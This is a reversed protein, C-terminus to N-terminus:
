TPRSRLPWGTAPYNRLLNMMTVVIIILWVGRIPLKLKETAIDSGLCIFIHVAAIIWPQLRHVPRGTRVTGLTQLGTFALILAAILGLQAAESQPWSTRSIVADSILIAFLAPWVLAFDPGSIRYEPKDAGTPITHRKRDLLVV